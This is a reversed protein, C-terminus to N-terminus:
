SNNKMEPESKTTKGSDKAAAAEKVAKEAALLKEREEESMEALEKERQKKLRPIIVYNYLVLFALTVVVLIIIWFNFSGANQEIYHDLLGDCNAMELLLAPGVKYGGGEAMALVCGFENAATEYLAAPDSPYVLINGLWSWFLARTICGLLNALLYKWFDLKVLGSVYSVIDFSMLPFARLVFVVPAGTKQLYVDIAEINEAGVFKEVVPGGGMAAIWYCLVAAFISGLFGAIFGGWIGWMAGAMLLVMESPIPMLLGQVAMFITFFVPILWPIPFDLVWRVFNIVISFLLSPNMAILLYLVLTAVVVAGFIGVYLWTKKDWEKITKLREFLGELFSKLKGQKEGNNSDNENSKDDSM